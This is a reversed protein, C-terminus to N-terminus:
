ALMAGMEARITIKDPLVDIRLSQGPLGSQTLWDGALTLEGNDEVWDAGETESGDLEAMLAAIDTDENLRTLMLGNRYLRIRFLTNATFGTQALEDGTLTLEPLEGHQFATKISM